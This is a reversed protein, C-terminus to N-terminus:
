PPPEAYGGSLFDFIREANESDAQLDLSLLADPQSRWEPAIWFWVEVAEDPFDKSLQCTVWRETGKWTWQAQKGGYM